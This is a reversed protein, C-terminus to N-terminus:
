AATFRQSWYLGEMEDRSKRGVLPLLSFKFPFHRSKLFNENCEVASYDAELWTELRENRGTVQGRDQGLVEQWTHLADPHIGGLLLQEVHDVLHPDVLLQPYLHFIISSKSYNQKKERRRYFMVALKQSKWRRLMPIDRNGGNGARGLGTKWNLHLFFSDDIELVDAFQDQPLETLVVLCLEDLHHELHDRSLENDDWYSLLNGIIPRKPFLNRTPCYIEILKNWCKHPVSGWGVWNRALFYLSSWLNMSFFSKRSM